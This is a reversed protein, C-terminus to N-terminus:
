AVAEWEEIRMYTNFAGQRAEAARRKQWARAIMEATDAITQHECRGRYQFGKCDCHDSTVNRHWHGAETRSKVDIAIGYADIIVSATTEPLLLTLTEETANWRTYMLFTTMGAHRFYEFGQTIPLGVAPATAGCNVVAEHPTSSVSLYPLTSASTPAGTSFQPHLTQM